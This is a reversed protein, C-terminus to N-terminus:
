FELGHHKALPGYSSFNNKKLM